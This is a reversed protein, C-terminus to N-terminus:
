RRLVWRRARRRSERELRKQVSEDMSAEGGLFGRLDEESPRWPELGRREEYKRFEAELKALEEYSTPEEARIQDIGPRCSDWWSIAHASFNVWADEVPLTKSRVVLYALLEFVNLVERAESPLERRSDFDELLSAAATARISRLLPQDWREILRWMNDIGLQRRRRRGDMVLAIVAAVAAVLAGLATIVAWPDTNSGQETATFLEAAM